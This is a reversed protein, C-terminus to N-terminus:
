IAQSVPPADACVELPGIIIYHHIDCNTSGKTMRFMATRAKINGTVGIAVWLRSQLEKKPLISHGALLCCRM